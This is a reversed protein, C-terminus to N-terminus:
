VRALPRAALAKLKRPHPKGHEVYHKLEELLRRMLGTMQLRLMPAMVMGIAGSTTITAVSRVRTAQAGEPVLTWRNVGREVFFPFGEVVEYELTFRGPDFELLQERIRGMGKIDCSRSECVHDAIPKGHGRTHLLASGWTHAEGFQDGLVAWVAQPSQDVLIETEIRMDIEPAELAWNDEIRDLRDSQRGSRYNVICANM